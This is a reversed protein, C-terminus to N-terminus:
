PGAPSIPRVDPCRSEAHVPTFSVMEQDGQSMAQATGGASTSGSSCGAALLTLGLLAAALAGATAWRRTTGRQNTTKM